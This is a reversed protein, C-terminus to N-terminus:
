AEDGDVVFPVFVVLDSIRAVGDGGFAVDEIRAKVREGVKLM